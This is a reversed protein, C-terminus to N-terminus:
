ASATADHDAVEILADFPQQLELEARRQREIQAEGRRIARELRDAGSLRREVAIQELNLLVALEPTHRRGHRAAGVPRELPDRRGRAHARRVTEGGPARRLRPGPSRRLEVFVV